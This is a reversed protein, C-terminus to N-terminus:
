IHFLKAERTKLILMPTPCSNARKRINDAKYREDKKYIKSFWRFFRLIGTEIMEKM